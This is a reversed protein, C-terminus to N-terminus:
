KKKRSKAAKKVRGFDDDYRRIDDEGIYSGCQVEVIRLKATKQANELRHLTNIPIYTGQNSKLYFTKKGCTIKGIGSVVTWHESRFKHSQLSLRKGPFVEIVKVKYGRGMKIVTYTGWPRITKKEVM